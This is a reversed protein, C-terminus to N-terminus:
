TQTSFGPPVQGEQGLSLLITTLQTKLIEHVTSKVKAEQNSVRSELSELRAAMNELSIKYEDNQKRLEENEKQLEENSRQARELPPILRDECVHLQSSKEQGLVKISKEDESMSDESNKAGNQLAIDKYADKSHQNVHEIVKNCPTVIRIPTPVPEERGTEWDSDEYCYQAISKAGFTHIMKVKKRNEKNRDSVKKFNDSEFYRILTEWTAPSVGDPSKELLKENEKNQLYHAHLKHRYSRYQRNLQGFVAKKVQADERLNFKEKIALWLKKKSDDPIDKWRAYQLPAYKKIIVCAETKFEKANEGVIRNQRQHIVVDLKETLRRKKEVSIGRTIGRGRRKSTGISSNTEDINLLQEPSDQPIENEDDGGQNTTSM